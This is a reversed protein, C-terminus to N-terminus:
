VYEGDERQWGKGDLDIGIVVEMLVAFNHPAQNAWNTLCKVRSKPEPWSRLITPDLGVDPEESLLSDVPSEREGERKGRRKGM